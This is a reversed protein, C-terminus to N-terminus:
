IVAQKRAAERAMWLRCDRYLRALNQLPTADTNYEFVLGPKAAINREAIDGIELIVFADVNGYNASEEDVAHAKDHAAKKVVELRTKALLEDAKTPGGGSRGGSEELFSIIGKLDLTKGLLRESGKGSRCGINVVAEWVLLSLQEDNLARAERPDLDQIFQSMPPNEPDVTKGWREIANKVIRTATQMEEVPKLYKSKNM